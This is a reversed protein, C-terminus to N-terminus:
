GAVVERVLERFEENFAEAMDRPIGRAADPFFPRAPITVQKAFIFKGGPGKFRLAKKNVPVVVGGFNMLKAQKAPCVLKFSGQTPQSSIGAAMLGSKSLPKGARFRLRAWAIGYPDRSYRFCDATTKMAAAGCRQALTAQFQPSKLAELRRRMEEFPNGRNAM